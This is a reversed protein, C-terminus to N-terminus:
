TLFEAKQPPTPKHLQSRDCHELEQLSFSGPALDNETDQGDESAVQPRGEGEYCHTVESWTM